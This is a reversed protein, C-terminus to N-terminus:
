SQNLLSFSQNLSDLIDLGLVSIDDSDENNGESPFGMVLLLLGVISQSGLLLFDSSSDVLDDSLFNGLGIGSLKQVQEGTLNNLLLNGFLDRGDIRELVDLDSLDLDDLSWLNIRLLKTFHM